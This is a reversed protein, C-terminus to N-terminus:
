FLCDDDIGYASSFYANIMKAYNLHHLGYCGTASFSNMEIFVTKFGSEDKIVGFDLSCVNPREEWTKFDELAKEILATDMYKMYKFDGSYPRLDILNDYYM